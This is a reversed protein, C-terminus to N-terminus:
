ACPCQGVPLSLFLRICLVLARSQISLRGLVLHSSSAVFSTNFINIRICASVFFFLVRVSIHTHPLCWVSWQIGSSVLSGRRWVMSICSRSRQCRVTLVKEATGVWTTFIQSLNWQFGEVSLASIADRSIPTLPRRVSPWVALGFVCHRRQPNKSLPPLYSVSVSWM